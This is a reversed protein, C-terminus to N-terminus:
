LMVARYVILYFYSFASSSYYTAIIFHQVYDSDHRIPFFQYDSAHQIPFFRFFDMTMRPPNRFRPRCCVGLYDKVTFM